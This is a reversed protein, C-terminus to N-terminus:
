RSPPGASGASCPRPSGASPWGRTGRSSSVVTSRVGRGPAPVRDACHRAVRQAAPDALPRRRRPAPGGGRRLPAVAPRARHRRAPLDRHPHARGPVLTQWRDLLNRLNQSRWFSTTDALDEPLHSMLDDVFDQFSRPNGNKVQEQWEATATRGLDRVTVVLHVEFDELLPAMRAIQDRTASGFIEHSIMVTGGLRRGRRLLHAFTGSIAEPTWAGGPPSARWRSPRTSCGRRAYTPTSTASRACRRGTTASCPRCTPRGARPSGSTSSAAAAAGPPAADPRPTTVRTTPVREPAPSGLSPDSAETM